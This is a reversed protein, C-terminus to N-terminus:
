LLRRQRSGGPDGRDTVGDGDVREVVVLSRSAPEIRLELLIEGPEAAVDIKESGRLVNAVILAEGAVQDADNMRLTSVDGAPAALLHRQEVREEAARLQHLDSSRRTPFS